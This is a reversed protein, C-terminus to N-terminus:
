DKKKFREAFKRGVLTREERTLYLPDYNTTPISTGAYDEKLRHIFARTNIFTAVANKKKGAALQALSYQYDDGEYDITITGEADAAVAEKSKPDLGISRLYKATAPTMASAAASFVVVAFAAIMMSKM